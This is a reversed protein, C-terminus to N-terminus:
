VSRNVAPGGYLQIDVAPGTVDITTAPRAPGGLQWAAVKLRYTYTNSSSLQDNSDEAPNNIGTAENILTLPKVRSILGKDSELVRAWSLLIFLGSLDSDIRRITEDGDTAWALVTLVIISKPRKVKALCVCRFSYPRGLIRM